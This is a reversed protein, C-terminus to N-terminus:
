SPSFLYWSLECVDRGNHKITVVAQVAQVSTSGPSPPRTLDAVNVPKVSLTQSWEAMESVAQGRSDIAPTWTHGNLARTEAFTLQVTRERVNKALSMGTTLMAGDVNTRTGATLLQLMGLFGVGVIVTVMAAEILTFGGRRRGGGFRQLGSVIRIERRM